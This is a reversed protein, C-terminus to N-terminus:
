GYQDQRNQDYGRKVTGRGGLDRDNLGDESDNMVDDSDNLGQNGM